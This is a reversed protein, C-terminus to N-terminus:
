FASDAVKERRKNEATWLPSSYEVKVVLQEGIMVGLFDDADMDGWYALFIAKGESIAEEAHGDGEAYPERYLEHSTGPKGYKPTLVKDRMERFIPIADEDATVLTVMLKALRREPTMIAWVVADEGRLKGKFQLDGAEDKEQFDFGIKQMGATVAADDAGFPIDAFTYKQAAAPVALLVALLLLVFAPGVSRQNM